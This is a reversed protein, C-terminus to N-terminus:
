HPADTRVVEQSIERWGRDFTFTRAKGVPDQIKLIRAKAPDTAHEVVYLWYAAGRERGCEFQTRSLGVPQDELSGTMSKVEVWRTQQGSSDVEYLDFGPNGVPTRCLTPESDIILKIAQDEIRMRAAQDLGELDAGEEDPHTGVYSIFQDADTQGSARGGHGGGNTEKGGSVGHGDSGGHAGGNSQGRDRSTGLGTLAQAGSVGDGGGSNNANSLRSALEAVIAPYRRLLDIIAPDIGAEKALQDINSSKFAIKALLFPNSKWGLTDFVVLNPPVLEGNADPVWPTQNLARVFAADFRATKIEQSNTWTYSGYFVTSGRGELDALADWLVGARARAESPELDPLIKLLQALGRITFDEPTTERSARELGAEKRIQAKQASSLSSPVSELRLYRSAGCAILLDRIDEGRLCEYKDDVIFVGDVGVFLQKLRDSAIYVTSPKAVYDKGDGTDVVMVFTTERLASHLREKQANSDPNFAGRIRRIDAAYTDDDVDVQEQRYKPLVNRIVDDVLDPEAIGLSRLFSRAESTACVAGRATPFGTKHNSPLFAKAEGDEHAVVHEGDELRILPITELYRRLAAEQGNLFEYLRSVWEDSQAQLFAKTLRQVLQAPRIEDIGLDRMLYQRIEPAKDETIDGSLWVTVEM